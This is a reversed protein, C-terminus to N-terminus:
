RKKKASSKVPRPSTEVAAPKKNASVKWRKAAALLPAPDPKYYEKQVTVDAQLACVVLFSALERASAKALRATVDKKFDVFAGGYSGKSKEPAPWGMLKSVHGADVKHLFERAVLRLDDERLETVANRLGELLARRAAAEDRWKREQAKRKEAAAKETKSPTRQEREYRDAHVSCKGPQTCVATEEKVAGSEVDVMVAPHTHPCVKKGAPRYQDQTLLVFPGAGALRKKDESGLYYPQVIRVAAKGDKSLAELRRVVHAQTKAQYCSRDTCTNAKKADHLAADAGARKPCASCIGAAPLLEADEAPFPPKDLDMHVNLAIWENLGKVSMMSGGPIGRHMDPDRLQCAQLARLQDAPQLRAIAIAHWEGIAGKALAKQVPAAAELLKMTAHVTSIERNVAKALDRRDSYAGLALLRAYGRARELPTVDQREDNAVIVIKAAQVDTLPKVTAPVAKLGALKAARWRREGDVLEYVNGAVIRLIIPHLIGVDRISAALETLSVAEIPDRNQFPSVVIDDIPHDPRFFEKFAPVDAAAAPIAPAHM